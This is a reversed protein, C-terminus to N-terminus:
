KIERAKKIIEDIREERGCLYNFGVVAELSTAKKYEELNSNKPINNTHINKARSAVNQENDTLENKIADFVQAQASARVFSTALRNLEGAKSTNEKVLFEKIKLSYVADGLFALVLANTEKAEKESKIM